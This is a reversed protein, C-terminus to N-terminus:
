CTSHRYLQLVPSLDGETRTPARTKNHDSWYLQSLAALHPVASFATFIDNRALSSRNPTGPLDELPRLFTYRTYLQNLLPLLQPDPLGGSDERELALQELHPIWNALAYRHLDHMGSAVSRYRHAEQIQPDILDLATMVYSVCASALYTVAQNKYIFPGSLGDLMYRTSRNAFTQQVFFM